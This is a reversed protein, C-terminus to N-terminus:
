LREESGEDACQRTQALEDDNGLGLGEVPGRGPAESAAERGAFGGRVEDVRDQLM